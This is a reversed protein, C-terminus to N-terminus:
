RGSVSVSATRETFYGYDATVKLQYSQFTTPVDTVTVDCSLTIDRGAVLEQEGECDGFGSLGSATIDIDLRNLETEADLEVNESGDTYVVSGQQYLTGGGVNSVKIQLTFTNEGPALVVPDPIAKVYLAIPGSTSSLAANNLTRGSARAADSESQSYVWVNGTVVTSYDYYVRGIFVDSRTTGREIGSPSNLSYTVTQEGAPTGRVPDAPDLRKTLHEYISNTTGRGSWYLSDSLDSKIASGTLMILADGIDVAAGGKNSVTMMIRGSSNSYVETPDATFDSIVLGAGGVMTTTQQIWPIQQVCGAVMVAALVTLLLEKRM